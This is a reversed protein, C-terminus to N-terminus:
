SRSRALVDLVLHLLEDPRRTIGFAAPPVPKQVNDVYFILPPSRADSALQGALILGADAEDGRAIDSIIVDYSKRRLAGLAAESTTAIDVRAGADQFLSVEPRNNEPEDDVWLIRADRMLEVSRALRRSAHGLDVAPVTQQRSEVAQELTNRFEIEVGALNFKQVRSLLEVVRKRGIWLLVWLLFGVWLLHPGLANVTDWPFSPAKDTAGIHIDLM